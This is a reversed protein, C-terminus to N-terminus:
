RNALTELRRPAETSGFDRAKEYWSRAKEVDAGIGRTGLKALVFPDYTAGLALAGMADGAEAARQFVVRATVLDGAAVFQEGQQILLKIDEPDLRRLPQSPAGAQNAASPTTRPTDKVVLSTGNAVSAVQQRAPAATQERPAGDNGSVPEATAAPAVAALKMEPAPKPPLMGVTGSRGSVTEAPNARVGAPEGAPMSAPARTEVAAYKATRDTVADPIVGGTTLYYAIPAAIVSAILIRM